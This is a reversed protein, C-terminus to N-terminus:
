SYPLTPTIEQLASIIQPLKMGSSTWVVYTQEPGTGKQGGRLDAFTHTSDISLGKSTLATIYQDLDKSPVMYIGAADPSVGGATANANTLSNAQNVVNITGNMVFGPVDSNVGAESYNFTGTDNFTIPKTATNFSFDGSEFGGNASNDLTVKHDHDVDGNFWTVTTGVNVVANQPLYPQNALPLQNKPQSTSEHAEDPIFIVLNKINNGLVMSHTEFMTSADINPQEGQTTSGITAFLPSQIGFAISGAVFVTIVAVTINCSGFHNNSVRNNM